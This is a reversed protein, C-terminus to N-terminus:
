SGRVFCRPSLQHVRGVVALRYERLPMCMANELHIGEACNAVPFRCAVFLFLEDAFGHMPLATVPTIATEPGLKVPTLAIAECAQIWASQREHLPEGRLPSRQRMLAFLVDDILKSGSLLRLMGLTM